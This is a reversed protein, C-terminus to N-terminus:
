RRLQHNQDLETMQIGRAGRLGATVAGGGGESFRRWSAVPDWSILPEDDGTDTLCAKRYLPKKTLSVEIKSPTLFLIQMHLPHERRCRPEM